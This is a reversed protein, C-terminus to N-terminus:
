IEIEMGDYGVEIGAPSLMAVLGEHTLGGNHTFHNAIVRSSEGIIGRKLLEDRADIVAEAGMHGERYNHKGYTCDLIAVDLRHESLLDWTEEAWWGTDNGILIKHEGDQLVYNFCVEDPMHSARIPLASREEALEIRRGVAVESFDMFCQDLSQAFADELMQGIRASGHITLWCGEPLVSFGSARYHLSVPYFHDEHSHTILLHRLKTYDLNWTVQAFFLDPGLDIMIDDDWLYATRRRIDRGGNERAAQCVPCDCFLAPIGEAAASGLINLRM